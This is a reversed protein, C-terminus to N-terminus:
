ERAEESGYLIDEAADVAKDLQKEAFGSLEEFAKQLMDALTKKTILPRLAVPVKDYLMTLAYEFKQEGKKATGAFASEADNIAKATLNQLKESSRYYSALFAFIVGLAYASYDILDAINIGEFFSM